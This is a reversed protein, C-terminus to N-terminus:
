RASKKNLMIFNMDPGTDTDAQVGALVVGRFIDNLIGITCHVQRLLFTARLEAKIVLCEAMLYLSM